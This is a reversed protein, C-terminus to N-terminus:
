SPVVQCQEVAAKLQEFRIQKDLIVDAKIWSREGSTQSGFRLGTEHAVGTVLIVPVAPHKRKMKHCLIFGSDHHEMMLDFVALEPTLSDILQEGEKQNEGVRVQYGLRELMLQLQTQMDPDDDVLIALKKSEKQTM